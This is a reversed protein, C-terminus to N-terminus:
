AARADDGGKDADGPLPLSLLNSRDEDPNRAEGSEGHGHRNGADIGGGDFPPGFPPGPPPPANPPSDPDGRGEPPPEDEPRGYRAAIAQEVETRVLARARATARIRAAPDDANPKRLPLTAATAAPLQRGDHSIRCAIRYRGLRRLDSEDLRPAFHPAMRHADHPPLAFCLKTQCNAEIAEALDADTLQALHQHALLFGLRYGRAEALAQALGGPLRCFRHAEDVLCVFPPRAPDPGLRQAAQWLRYVIVSGVLDAADGLTRAPLSVLLLKGEGVIREFDPAAEQCLVNRLARRGLFARLKNALPALAQERQSDSLARWQRWFQALAVPDSVPHRAKEAPDTLLALVDALTPAPRDDSRDALLTALASRFIDESRPGWFRGFLRRFIGVLAGVHVDEDGAACALLNLAPPYLEDSFDLLVVEDARAEPIRKLIEAVADGKPEVYGAGLGLRAAELYINCLATTKGRGTPGLVHVHQPLAETAIRLEGDFGAQESRGVLVGDYPAEAVPALSRAPAEPLVLPTDAAREPLPVLAAAEAATVVLPPRVAPLRREFRRTFLFERGPRLGGLEHFQTFSAALGSLRERAWRRRAAGAVLRVTLALAPESAKRGIATARELSWPDPPVAATSAYKTHATSPGPTVIDLADSALERSFGLAAHRFGSRRGGGLAWAEKRARSGARRALPSFVLQVCASESQAHGQLAALVQAAPDRRHEGRLPLWVSGAPRLVGRAWRRRQPEALDFRPTLREVSVGRIAAELASVVQPSFVGACCLEAELRQGEASVTFAVWAPVGGLGQRLLSSLTRFFGVLGERDFEEPLLLRVRVARAAARRRLVLRVTGGLVALALVAACAIAALELVYVVQALLGRLLGHLQESFRMLWPLHARPRPRHHHQRHAAAALVRQVRHFRHTHGVEKMQQSLDECCLVAAQRRGARLASLGLRGAAAWM